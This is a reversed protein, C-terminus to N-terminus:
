TLNRRWNSGATKDIRTIRPFTIFASMANFLRDFTRCASDNQFCFLANQSLNQRRQRILRRQCNGNTTDSIMATTETTSISSSEIPVVTDSSDNPDDQIIAHINGYPRGLRNHRCLRSYPFWVKSQTESAIRQCTKM